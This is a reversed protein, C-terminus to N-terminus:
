EHIEGGLDFHFNHRAEELKTEFSNDILIHSQPVIARTGGAFSYQSIKVADRNTLSIHILSLIYLSPLEAQLTILIKM